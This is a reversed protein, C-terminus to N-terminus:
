IYHGILQSVSQDLYNTLLLMPNKHELNTITLRHLVGNYDRRTIWQNPVRPTKYM